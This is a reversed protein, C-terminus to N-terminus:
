HRSRGSLRSRAKRLLTSGEELDLKRRVVQRREGSSRREDPADLHTTRRDIGSRRDPLLRRETLKQASGLAIALLMEEQSSSDDGV